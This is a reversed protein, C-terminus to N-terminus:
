QGPTSAIMTTPPEIEELTPKIWPKKRDSTYQERLKELDHKDIYQLEPAAGRTLIHAPLGTDDQVDKWESFVSGIKRKPEVQITYLYLNM